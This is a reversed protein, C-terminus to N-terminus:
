DHAMVGVLHHRYECKAGSPVAASLVRRELVSLLGRFSFRLSSTGAGSLRRRTDERKTYAFVIRPHSTALPSPVLQSVIIAAGSASASGIRGVVRNETGSRTKGLMAFRLQSWDDFQTCRDDFESPVAGARRRLM